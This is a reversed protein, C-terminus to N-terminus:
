ASGRSRGSNANSVSPGRTSEQWSLVQRKLNINGVAPTTRFPPSAKRQSSFSHHFKVEVFRAM